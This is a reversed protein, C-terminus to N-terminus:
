LRQIKSDWSDRYLLRVWRMMVPKNPEAPMMVAMHKLSHVYKKTNKMM